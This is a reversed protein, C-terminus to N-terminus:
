EAEEVFHLVSDMRIGPRSNTFIASGITQMTRLQTMKFRRHMADWQQAKFGTPHSPPSPAPPGDRLHQPPQQCMQLHQIPHRSLPHFALALPCCKLDFLLTSGPWFGCQLPGELSTSNGREPWLPSGAPRHLCGWQMLPTRMQPCTPDLFSVQGRCIPNFLGLQM